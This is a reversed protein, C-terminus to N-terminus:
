FSDDPIFNYDRCFARWAYYHYDENVDGRTNFQFRRRHDQYCKLATLAEEPTHFRTQLKPLLREDEAANVAEVQSMGKVRVRYVHHHIEFLAEEYGVRHSEDAPYAKRLVFAREYDRALGPPLVVPNIFEVLAELPLIDMDQSAIDLTPSSM